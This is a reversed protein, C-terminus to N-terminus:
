RAERRWWSALASEALALLLAAWLLPGRLDGRSAGSFVEDGVDALPMGCPLCTSRLSCTSCPTPFATVVASRAGASVTQAPSSAYHVTAAATTM